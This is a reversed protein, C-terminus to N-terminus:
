EIKQKRLFSQSDKKVTQFSLACGIGERKNKRGKGFTGPFLIRGTLM